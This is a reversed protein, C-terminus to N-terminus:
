THMGIAAGKQKSFYKTQDLCRIYKKKWLIVLVVVLAVAGTVVLVSVVVGAAIGGSRQVAPSNTSTTPTPTPAPM